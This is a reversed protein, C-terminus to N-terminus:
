SYSKDIKNDCISFIRHVILVCVCQTLSIKPNRLCIKHKISYRTFFDKYSRRYIDLKKICVNFLYAKYMEYFTQLPFFIWCFFHSIFPVFFFHVLNALAINQNKNKYQISACNILIINSVITVSSRVTTKIVSCAIHLSSPYRAVEYEFSTYKNKKLTVWSPAVCHMGPVNLDIFTVFVIYPLLLLLMLILLLMVVLCYLLLLLLKKFWFFFM